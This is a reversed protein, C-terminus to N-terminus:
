KDFYLKFKQTIKHKYFKVRNYTVQWRAYYIDKKDLDKSNEYRSRFMESDSLNAWYKNDLSKIEQLKSLSTFNYCKAAILASSKLNFRDITTTNKILSWMTDEDQVIQYNKYIITKNDVVTIPSSNKVEDALIKELQRSKKKYYM